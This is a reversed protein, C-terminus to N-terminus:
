HDLGIALGLGERDSGIIRHFYVTQAVWSNRNSAIISPPSALPVVVTVHM